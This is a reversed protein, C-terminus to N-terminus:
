TGCFTQYGEDGDLPPEQFDDCGKHEEYPAQL